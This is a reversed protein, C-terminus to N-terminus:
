KARKSRVSKAKAPAAKAKAAPAKTKAKAKAKAHQTWLEPVFGVSVFTEAVVLPRKVLNGNSALLALAEVPSLHSLLEGVGQARYDIGSTNFLRRVAGEAENLARVLEDRTPPQERIPIVEHAQGADELFKLARRCTSCKSYAYVKWM